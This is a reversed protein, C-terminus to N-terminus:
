SRSSATATSRSSTTKMWAAVVAAAAAAAAAASSYIVSRMAAEAEAGERGGRLTRQSSPATRAWRARPPAAWGGQAQLQRVADLLSSRKRAVEHTEDRLQTMTDAIASRFHSKRRGATTGLEAASPQAAAAVPEAAVATGTELYFRELQKFGTELLSQLDSFGRGLFENNLKAENLADMKSEKISEVEEELQAIRNMCLTRDLEVEAIKRELEKATLKPGGAAGGGSGGLQVGSCSSRKHDGDEMPSLAALEAEEDPPFGGAAREEKDSRMEYLQSVSVGDVKMNSITFLSWWADLWLPFSLLQVTIMQFRLRWNAESLFEIRYIFPIIFSYNCHLTTILAIAFTCLLLTYLRILYVTGVDSVRSNRSLASGLLRGIRVPSCILPTTNTAKEFPNSDDVNVHRYSHMYAARTLQAIVYAPILTILLYDFTNDPGCAVSVDWVSYGLISQLLYYTLITSVYFLAITGFAWVFAIVDRRQFYPKMFEEGRYRYILESPDALTASATLYLIVTCVCTMLALTLLVNRVEKRRRQIVIERSYVALLGKIGQVYYQKVADWDNELCVVRGRTTGAEGTLFTKEATSCSGCVGMELPQITYRHDGGVLVADGLKNFPDYAKCRGESGEDYYEDATETNYLFGHGKELHYSLRGVSELFGRVFALKQQYLDRYHLVHRYKLLEEASWQSTAATRAPTEDAAYSEACMRDQRAEQGAEAATDAATCNRGVMPSPAATSAISGVLDDIFVGTAHRPVPLGLLAMVTPAIDTNEVTYTGEDRWEDCSNVHDTGSDRMIDCVDAAVVSPKNTVEELTRSRAVFRSGDVRASSGASNRASRTRTGLGSGKQYAFLPVHRVDPTVGGFGGPDVHGHDGVILFLTQEDGFRDILADVEDGKKAIARKYSNARWKSGEPDTPIFEQWPPESSNGANHQNFADSKGHAIGQSDIDTFHLLFMHYPRAADGLAIHAVSARGSDEEVSSPQFIEPRDLWDDENAVYSITGDGHLPPLDEKFLGSFWPSVSAAAEYPRPACDTRTECAWDDEFKTMVRFLNDYAISGINRNGLVGMMDPTIGTVTAAWNPVANTPLQVRMLLEMGDASWGVRSRFRLFSVSDYEASLGGLVVLVVRQAGNPVPKPRTNSTSRPFQCGGSTQCGAGGPNYQWSTAPGGTSPDYARSPWYMPLNSGTEIATIQVKSLM